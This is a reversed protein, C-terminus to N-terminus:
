IQKFFKLYFDKILYVIYITINVKYTNIFYYNNVKIKAFKDKLQILINNIILFVIKTLNLL